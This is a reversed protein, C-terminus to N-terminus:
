RAGRRGGGQPEQRDGPHGRRRVPGAQLAAMARRVSETAFADQQPARSATSRRPPIRSAAWPSATSPVKCATTSCTTSIEGHGMRYGSRAKPLLYPANRCRNWAAPSSWRACHRRSDPRGGLMVAKLASGCMKNITTCARGDPAGAAWRRRARPRRVWAPRCCAAWSSRRSIPGREVGSARSRRRSRPVAWSCPQSPSNTRRPVGRDANAQRVRHSSRSTSM